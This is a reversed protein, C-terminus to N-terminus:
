ASAPPPARWLPGQATPTVLGLAVLERVVPLAEDVSARGGGDLIERLTRRGDLASVVPLCAPPIRGTVPVGEAVALRARELTGAADRREILWTAPARELVADLLDRDSALGELFDQAAFVREIHAGSQSQPRRALEDERCWNRGHRRRLVIAGSSIAEIGRERYYGLWQEAAAASLKPNREIELNWRLAYTVPSETHFHLLWADCGSGELWRRPTESWSRGPESVWCCVIHAFGGERLRAGAGKVISQSFSDSELGGDRFLFERAPSVIYPPNSVVLDFQEDGVPEFRDGDRWEVNGVGNLDANLQALQLARPNVDVGIVGTSHSAALLAQTGSGTGVDLVSSVARRVTLHALLRTSSGIGLIHDPGPRDAPDAAIVLGAFPHLRVRARARGNRVTLLEDLEAPDLPALASSALILELEEGALFLRVLVSLPEEADPRIRLGALGEEFGLRGDDRVVLDVGTETYGSRELRERL